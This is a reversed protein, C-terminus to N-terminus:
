LNNRLKDLMDEEWRSITTGTVGMEDGLEEQTKNEFYRGRLINLERLDLTTVAVSMVHAEYDTKEYAEAHDPQYAMFDDMEVVEAALTRELHRIGSESYDGTIEGTGRAVKRATDSKPISLPNTDFNAYDYMRRTAMRWLKAPHPNPDEAIVEYCALVGESVLDDFHQPMKYKGALKECMSLIEQETM